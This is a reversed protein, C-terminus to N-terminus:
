LFFVHKLVHDYTDPGDVLAAVVYSQMTGCLFDCQFTFFFFLVIYKM